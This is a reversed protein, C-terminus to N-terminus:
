QKNDMGAGLYFGTHPPQNYSSNQWAIALRYVPDQMLTTLRRSSPIVTTYIRLESNDASRWIVEERWDGFLDASLCPTAKTGNNSVCGEATLLRRTTSTKWDWKDIHNGDLLERTLDDDWWVLFNTSSPMKESITKGHVDRLGGPGGWNEFGPHRPDIDAAVGRGVDVGPALSWLIEGTKADFQAVGPTNLALTREESEHIGFVELGPRRPDLDALHLADGHRLGTTYLGHGNDDVTMAGICVEDKGDGDVDAVSLNHNGMGSYPNQADKSDFIWRQTLQGNRWDWASLVSRGYWGRVMVVSPLKGDLYAVCATFRDSRSATRDNGGNGGIGGWGDLPYRDPTYLATALAAGSRGDFVTLYEPGEAVKGYFGKHSPDLNRWDKTPDGVVKGQGDLTGDATKCVVEARGDGDLDYVMFQTYAAGSRINKGLDIRWLRTGDLTYADLLQHGTPGLQPPNKANSPDWKLVIEYQGDGDLDAVSADNASYTFPSGAVEGGAPVQLPISLYPGAPAGAAVTFPEGPLEQGKVLAMVTYTHAQAPDATADVFNTAGTLPQKNLKVATKGGTSRYLNFATGKPDGALLRWGLYVSDGTRLAVLGRGLKEMVRQAGAKPALLPNGGALAGLLLAKWFFRKQPM